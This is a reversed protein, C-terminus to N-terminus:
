SVEAFDKAYNDIDAQLSELRKDLKKQEEELKKKMEEELEKRKSEMSSQLENRRKIAAQRKGAIERRYQEVTDYLTIWISVNDVYPAISLRKGESDRFRWGPSCPCMSCGAKMDFQMKTFDIRRAVTELGIQTLMDVLVTTVELDWLESVIKKELKNYKKWLRDNEENDGKAGYPPQEMWGRDEPSPFTVSAYFKNRKHYDANIRQAAIVVVQGNSRQIVKKM